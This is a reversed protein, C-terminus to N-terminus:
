ELKFREGPLEADIRDKPCGTNTKMEYLTRPDTVSLTVNRFPIRECKLDAFVFAEGLRTLVDISFSEDPLTYAM